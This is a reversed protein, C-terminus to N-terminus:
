ESAAKTECSGKECCKCFCKCCRGCVFNYITAILFGGIFGDIFGWVLGILSGGLTAAYGPYMSAMMDFFLKGYDGNMAIIGMVLMMVGWVLGMALGLGGACLRGSCKHM